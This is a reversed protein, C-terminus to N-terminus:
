PQRTNVKGKKVEFSGNMPYIRAPDTTQSEGNTRKLKTSQQLLYIDIGLDKNKYRSEQERFEALGNFDFFLAESGIHVLDLGYFTRKSSTEHVVTHDSPAPDYEFFESVDVVDDSTRVCWRWDDVSTVFLGSNSETYNQLVVLKPKKGFDLGTELELIRIIDKSSVKTKLLVLNGSRLSQRYITGKFNVTHETFVLTLGQDGGFAPLLLLCAALFPICFFSKM